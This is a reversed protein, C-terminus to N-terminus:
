PCAELGEVTRTAPVPVAGNRARHLVNEYADLNLAWDFRSQVMARAAPVRVPEAFDLSRLAAEAMAAPSDSICGQRDAFDEIGEWAEPTALVVKEMALAELVKNQIGRAIRLPATVAHAHALYPRVDDVQGTVTVGALKALMRVERAPRAGVICFRADPRKALVRPWVERAFWQAAHVNARYDMAGVFVIVREGAQYPSPYGRQPNWYGADVGNSIGYVKDATAPAQARFFAAEAESVFLSADFQSAIAREFQALRRAERQFIMRSLGRRAQAYQRWKDSDADVFDMVRRLEFHRMVLPAVGSSYCLALDPKREAIIRDVWRRMARDRYVGLTFARGRALSALARWRARWPPLPRICVGACVAEVEALWRWDAPDDVFTGLYVHYHEALRRLVHYSRIKDGKDPPWPLRHCLFLLSRM